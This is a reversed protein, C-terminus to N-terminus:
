YNVPKKLCKEMGELVCHVMHKRAETGEQTNYNWFLEQKPVADRPKRSPNLRYLIQRCYLLVQNLEQTLFIGQLLSLSGVRTNKPKGLPESLWSNAQLTPSRPKIGPHSSERSSPMSVWELIRAQFIGHVSSGPPSCDMPNCLTMCLQTVLYLCLM